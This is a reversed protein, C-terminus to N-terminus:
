DQEKMMFYYKVYVQLVMENSANNTFVYRHGFHKVASQDITQQNGGTTLWFDKGVNLQLPLQSGESDRLDPKPSKIYYSVPKTLRVIKCGDDNLVDPISAPAPTYPDRNPAIYFMPLTGVQGSTNPYGNNADSSNALPIITVKVGKLKYLDFLSEYSNWNILDNIKYTLTGTVTTGAAASISAIQTKETFSHVSRGLAKRRIRRQQRSVWARAMPGRLKRKRLARLLPM